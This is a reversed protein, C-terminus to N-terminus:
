KKMKKMRQLSYYDSLLKQMVDLLLTHDVDRATGFVGSEGLTHGIQALSGSEGNSETGGESKAFLPAFCVEKGEIIFVGTTLHECFSAFWAYIGWVQWPEMQRGRDIKEKDSDWDYPQRYLQQLHKQKASAEPRYLLGALALLAEPKTTREYNRIHTVAQRFEGFTLDTGYDKPGLWERLKPLLNRVDRFVLSIQNGEAHWLWGLTKALNGVLLVYDQNNIQLEVGRHKLLMRATDTTIDWESYRGGHEVVRQRIKLLERWDAETLEDWTNPIEIYRQKM